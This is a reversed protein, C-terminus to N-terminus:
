ETSTAAREKKEGSSAPSKEPQDTSRDRRAADGGFYFGAIAAALTTVASFLQTRLDRVGSGSLGLVAVFLVALLAFGTIALTTRTTSRGPRAALSLTEVLKAGVADNGATALVRAAQDEKADKGRLGLVNKLTSRPASLNYLTLGYMGLLILGVLGIVALLVPPALATVADSAVAPDPSATPAVDAPIAHPILSASSPM